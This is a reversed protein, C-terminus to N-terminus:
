RRARRGRAPPPEPPGAPPPEGEDEDELGALPDEDGIPEDDEGVPGTDPVGPDGDDFADEEGFDGWEDSDPEPDAPAATPTPAPDTRPVFPAPLAPHSARERQVLGRVIEFLDSHRADENAIYDFRLRLYGRLQDSNRLLLEHEEPWRDLPLDGPAEPEVPAPPPPPAPRPNRIADVLADVVKEKPWDYYLPVNLKRGEQLLKEKTMKEFTLRLPDRPSPPESIAAIYHGANARVPAAIPEYDPEPEDEWARECTPCRGNGKHGFYARAEERTAPRMCDGHKALMRQGQELPVEALASGGRLLRRFLVQGDPWYYTGDAALPGTFAVIATRDAM